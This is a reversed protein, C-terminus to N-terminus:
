YLLFAPNTECWVCFIELALITCFNFRVLSVMSCATIYYTNHVIEADFKGPGFKDNMYHRLDKETLGAQNLHTAKITTIVRGPSMELNQEPARLKQLPTAKLGQTERVTLYKMRSTPQDPAQYKPPRNTPRLENSKPFSSHAPTKSLFNTRIKNLYGYWFSRLDKKSVDFSNHSAM